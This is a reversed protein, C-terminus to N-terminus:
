RDSREKTEPGAGNRPTLFPFCNAVWQLAQGLTLIFEPPPAVETEALLRNFRARLARATTGDPAVLLLYDADLWVAKRVAFAVRDARLEAECAVRVGGLTALLDVYGRPAGPGIPYELRTTAGAARFAVDLRGVLIANHVFGGRM